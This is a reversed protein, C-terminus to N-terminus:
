FGFGPQRMPLRAHQASPAAPKWHFGLAKMPTRSCRLAMADRHHVPWSYEGNAAAVAALRWLAHLAYISPNEPRLACPLQMSGAGRKGYPMYNSAM